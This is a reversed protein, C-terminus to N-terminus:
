SSSGSVALFLFPTVYVKEKDTTLILRLNAGTAPARDLISFLMRLFALRYICYVHYSKGISQFVLQVNM